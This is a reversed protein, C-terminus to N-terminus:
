YIKLFPLQGCDWIKLLGYDYGSLGKFLLRHFTNNGDTWKFSAYAKGKKFGFDELYHGTGYRLDIFTKLSDMDVNREIYKLLKSFGGVVNIGKACCFRSIEYNKDKIRKLQLTAVLEGDYELSYCNGRGKGMLHNAAICKNHKGEVISCKRAYVRKSRGLANLIMSEIVDKKDRIEDERFFFPKYGADIYIQRKKVHYNNDKIISDSHWYLGDCEIALNGSVVDAIKGGIYVQSKYDIDNERFLSSISSEIWTEHKKTKIAVELGVTRVREHFSSLNIGIKKSLEKANQGNYVIENGNKIRTARRKRDFEEQRSPDQLISEVGYKEMNTEKAKKLTSEKYEENDYRNVFGYAKINSEEVRKKGTESHLFNTDGYLELNTVKTKEIINGSTDMGKSKMYNILVSRTINFKKSIYNVSRGDKYLNQIEIDYDEPLNNVVSKSKIVKSKSAIDTGYKKLCSEKRKLTRCNECADKNIIKRSNFRTRQKLKFDVGCYDCILDVDKLSGKSIKQDKHKLMKVLGTILTDFLVTVWNYM